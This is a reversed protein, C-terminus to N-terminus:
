INKPFRPSLYPQRKISVMLKNIIPSEITFFKSFRDFKKDFMLCRNSLISSLNEGITQYHELDFNKTPHFNINFFRLISCLRIANQVRIKYNSYEIQAFTHNVLHCFTRMDFLTQNAKGRRLMISFNCTQFNSNCLWRKQKVKRM